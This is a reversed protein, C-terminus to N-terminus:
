LSLFLFYIDMVYFVKKKFLSYTYLIYKPIQFKIRNIKIVTKGSVLPFYIMANQKKNIAFLVKPKSSHCKRTLIYTTNNEKKESGLKLGM